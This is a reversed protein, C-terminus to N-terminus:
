ASIDRRRFGLLGIGLLVVAACAFWWVSADFKEYPMRPTGTFPMINNIWAPLKLADGILIDFYMAAYIFWAAPVTARPVFGFLVVVLSFITLIGPVYVLADLAMTSTQSMDHAMSGYSAGMSAGGVLLLIVLTIAAIIYREVVIRYRSMGRTLQAESLGRAEDLRLGTMMQLPLIMAVIAIFVLLLGLLADMGTGQLMGVKMNKIMDLMQRAVSGFLLGACTMGLLWGILPGRYLHLVFGWSTQMLANAKTRGAKDKLVGSGFDRRAEIFYAVWLALATLLLFPLILWMKNDGWPAMKEGWGIPSFWTLVNENMDGLMRLVFFGVIILSGNSNALSASASLQNTLAGVAVGLFGCGMLSLGFTLSGKMGTGAPDLGLAHAVFTSVAGIVVSLVLAGGVASTLPAHLGFARSRILELRGSEEDGRAGKTIQFVMGIALTMALTMWIKTWVAGGMTASGPKGVLATMGPASSIAIFQNLEAQTTFLSQYYIAVYAFLGVVVAIWVLYRVLNRKLTFALYSGLGALTNRPASTIEATDM